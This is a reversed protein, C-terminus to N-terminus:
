PKNETVSTTDTPTARNWWGGGLAQFLAATDAYRAAQAQILGVHVQQYRRQADLLVLTTTAGLRHQKHVLDLSERALSDTETQAKLTDADAELARLTDAVNQFARLVTDRYLAGAQEYGALAARHRASLEGNHFIPQLLAAGFNWVTSPGTFLDGANNAQSGYSGTLTIRPYLNAAAVGARANAQRWLAEAGRIDPRQRVLASPVSLPLAQPLALSALTFEPLAADNPFKGTLAALQHRALFLEKNLAPLTAQVQSLETRQTIVDARTAGGLKFQRQSIDFQAQQAAIIEQTAQIQARLSAEKIATTVINSALALHAAELQFQQYSVESQLAELERQVGGAVDFAYSVEVSANYLNFVSSPGPQGITSPSFRQRTATLSADVNPSQRGDEARLNEQAQRLRAQAAALSPSDALGRRILENLPDSHFLEWWQAPIDDGVVLRQAAGAFGPSSTTADPMSSSTYSAVTPAEPQRFDPGVACGAGFWAPLTALGRVLVMRLISM